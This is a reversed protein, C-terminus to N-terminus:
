IVALARSNNGIRDRLERLADLIPNFTNDQESICTICLLKPSNDIEGLVLNLHVTSRPVQNTIPRQDNSRSVESVYSIGPIRTPIQLRLQTGSKVLSSRTM